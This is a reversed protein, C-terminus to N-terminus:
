PHSVKETEKCWDLWESDSLVRTLKKPTIWSAWGESDQNLDKALNNGIMRVVTFEEDEDLIYSSGNRSAFKLALQFSILPNEGKVFAGRKSLKVIQTSLGKDEM